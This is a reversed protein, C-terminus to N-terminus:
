CRHLAVLFRFHLNSLFTSCNAIISVSSNISIGEFIMGRSMAMGNIYIVGTIRYDGHCDAYVEQDTRADAIPGM